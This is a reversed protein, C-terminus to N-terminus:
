IPTTLTFNHIDVFSNLFEPFLKTFRLYFYRPSYTNCGALVLTKLRSLLFGAEVIKAGQRVM